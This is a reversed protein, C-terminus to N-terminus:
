GPFQQNQFDFRDTSEFSVQHIPHYTLAVFWLAGLVFWWFAGVSIMAVIKGRVTLAKFSNILNGPLEWLSRLWDVLALGLRLAIKWSPHFWAVLAFGLRLAIKWSSHFWAVLAFSLRSTLGTVDRRFGALRPESAPPVIQSEAYKGISAAELAQLFENASAFREVPDKKLAKRIVAHVQIPLSDSKITSAQDHIQKFMVAFANEGDFARQGTLMEYLVCAFSYLDSRQDVPKGSCIEPSCYFVTGLMFGTKTLTQVDRGEGPMLKALGFDVLKVTGDNAIMINSPTLDRHLIGAGHAHTLAACVSRSIDLAEVWSLRGRTNLLERVTKGQIYETVIYPLKHHWIGYTFFHCINRHELENLSRAEREFRLLSEADKALDLKLVKLAVIRELGIQKAKYVQAFGGEGIEELVEIRDDIKQGVLQM